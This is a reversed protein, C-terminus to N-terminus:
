QVEEQQAKFNGHGDGIFAFTGEAPTMGIMGPSPIVHEVIDAKGDHNIDKIEVDVNADKITIPGTLMRAKEPHGEPMELIFTRGENNMGQFYYRQGDITVTAVDGHEPGYHAPNWCLDEFVIALLSLFLWLLLLAILVLGVFRMALGIFEDRTLPLRRQRRQQRNTTQSEPPMYTQTQRQPQAQTPQAQTASSRRTPNPETTSRYQRYDPEDTDPRQRMRTGGNQTRSATTSSARRPQDYVDDMVDQVVQTTPRPVRTNTRVTSSSRQRQQQEMGYLGEDYQRAPRRTKIPEM